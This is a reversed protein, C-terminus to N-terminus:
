PKNKTEYFLQVCRWAGDIHALDAVFTIVDPKGAERMPFRIRGRAGPLQEIRPDLPGAPQLGPKRRLDHITMRFLKEPGFQIMSDGNRGEGSPRDLFTVFKSHFPGILPETAPVEAKPMPTPTHPTALAALFQRHWDAAADATLPRNEASYINEVEEGEIQIRFPELGPALSYDGKQFLVVISATSFPGDEPRAPNAPPPDTLRAYVMEIHLKRRPDGPVARQQMHHIRQNWMTRREAKAQEIEQLHLEAIRERTVTGANRYNVESAYYALLEPPIPQNWEPQEAFLQKILADTQTPLFGRTWENDQNARRVTKAKALENSWDRSFGGGSLAALTLLTGGRLWRRRTTWGHLAAALTVLLTLGALGGVTVMEAPIVFPLFEIRDFYFASPSDPPGQVQKLYYTYGPKPKSWPSLAEMPVDANDPGHGPTVCLGNAWPGDGSRVWVTACQAYLDYLFYLPLLLCLIQGSAVLVVAIKGVGLRLGFPSPLAERLPVRRFRWLRALQWICLPVLAQMLYFLAQFGGTKVSHKGILDVPVPIMANDMRILTCLAVLAVVLGLVTWLADATRTTQTVLPSGAYRPPSKCIAELAASMESVSGWRRAPEPHMARRLVEDVRVDVRRLQAAPAWAGRPPTGVLMEYLIVGLAYVDGGATPHYGRLYAEPPLYEVTGAILGAQTLSLHEVREHVPRALGFDAVMPVPPDGEAAPPALLINAPKLDRHLIGRGHAHAVAAAIGRFLAYAREPPLGGPPITHALTPGPIFRMALFLGADELAGADLLPVINGHELARLASAEAEIREVTDQDEGRAIKVAAVAGDAERVARWVVGLGGEGAVELIQWGPVVPKEPRAGLVEALGDPNLGRLFPPTKRAPQDPESPMTKM